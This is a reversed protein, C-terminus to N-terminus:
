DKGLEGKLETEKQFKRGTTKLFYKGMKLDLLCM